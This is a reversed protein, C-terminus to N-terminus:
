LLVRVYIKKQMFIVTFLSIFNLLMFIYICVSSPSYLSANLLYTAWGDELFFVEESSFFRKLPFFLLKFCSMYHNYLTHM